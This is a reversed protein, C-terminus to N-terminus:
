YTTQIAERVRDVSLNRMCKFHTLPCTQPGHDGCPRCNLDLSEVLTSKTSLPGFGMSPVTAGFIAVTPVNFASAYHLPSSDNTLLVDLQPYIGRLEDLSTKGILDIIQEPRSVRAMIKDALHKEDPSGLLLIQSRDDKSLIDALAAFSEIPWMKTGWKSGPAMGIWRHDVPKILKGDHPHLTPKSELIRERSLGVRELLLGIRHSEHLVAIRPVRTSLLFSCASERYGVTQYGLFAGLLTSRLSRHPIFVTSTNKRCGLKILKNKIEQFAALPHGSRKQFVLIEDLYDEDKLASKGIATTILIQKAKPFELKALKMAATSLIIDGLFSTQIWIISDLSSHKM